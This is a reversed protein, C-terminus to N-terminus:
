KIEINCTVDNNINLFEYKNIGNEIISEQPIVDGCNLNVIKDTLRTITFIFSEGKNVKNVKNIGNSIKIDTSSAFDEINEITVNYVPIVIKYFNITCTTNNTLKDFILSQNDYTANQNNTCQIKPNNYGLNPEIVISKADGYLVKETTTGKGNIVDINIILEKKEFNVTCAIDSTIASINITSTSEDWTAEKNNACIVSEFEFGENPIMKFSGDTEREITTVNKEDQIGNIVNFTIEYKANVFYLKCLGDKGNTEFEWKNENFKGTINNTCNYRKFIYKKEEINDSLTITSDQKPLQDVREDELYYEFIINNTETKNPNNNLDKNKVCQTYGIVTCISFIIFLITLTVFLLKNKM